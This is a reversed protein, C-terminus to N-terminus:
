YCGLEKASEKLGDALSPICERIKTEVADKDALYDALEKGSGYKLLVSGQYPFPIHYVCLDLIIGDKFRKLRLSIDTVYLDGDTYETNIYIPDFDTDVNTNALAKSAQNIIKRIPNSSDDNKGKLRKLLKFIM